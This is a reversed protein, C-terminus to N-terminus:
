CELAGSKLIAGKIKYKLISQQDVKKPDKYFTEDIRKLDNCANLADGTFGEKSLEQNCNAIYFEKLRSDSEGNYGKKWLWAQTIIGQSNREVELYHYYDVTITKLKGSEIGVQYEPKPTTIPTYKIDIVRFKNIGIVM